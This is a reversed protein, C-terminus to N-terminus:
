FMNYTTKLVKFETRRNLANAIEKQSDNLKSIFEETLPEGVRLFRNKRVLAKDPVVPQSEGYGKATLRDSEIGKALLYDVVAQARASSLRINDEDSGVYDTHAGIEITINPNDQLLKALDDLGASSEPTLEASGFKFFINNMKVPKDILSLVFDAEYNKDEQLDGIEVEQKNNLYARCTALMVYKTNKAAAYEYEGKKNVRVTSITGNNGVIKVSADSVPEGDTDLVKGFLKYEYQPIEFRFIADYYKRDNRNSSFFGWDGYAAFTIGFDDGRSNIPQLLNEIQWVKSSDAAVVQRASFIDLGGLGQHGDSSFYLTGDRRFSPFMEEGETNIEPGLNEPVGWGDGKRECRWIDKGGYGGPMDSVFYIYEGDPSIAPHATSITSDEVLRVVEPKTWEGGSRNSVYIAAGLTKGKEVKSVTFYMQQFDPSFACAGEDFETNIEEGEVLEPEEWQGRANKRVTYIENNRQGTINSNKSKTGKPIRTSNFYVVDADASAFVPCFDSYRSNMVPDKVVVYRTKEKWEGVAKECSEIGNKALNSEPFLKEYRQYMKLAEGYKGNRRLVEAYYYYLLSDRCGYRVANKFGTEARKNSEIIRYSNGMKFAVDGKLQRQKKSSVRPYIKRYMEAAKYYEGLAFKKDAKTIRSNLSCSAMLAVLLLGALIRKPM